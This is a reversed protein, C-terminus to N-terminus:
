VEQEYGDWEVYSGEGPDAYLDDDDDVVGTGDEKAKEGVGGGGEEVVVNVGEVDSMPYVSGHDTEGGDDGDEFERAPTPTHSMKILPANPDVDTFLDKLADYNIRKSYKPNKKILNRVSEAATAGSTTTGDRTKTTKRRQSFFLFLAYADPNSGVSYLSFNQWRLPVFRAVKRREPKM